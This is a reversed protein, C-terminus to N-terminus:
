PTCEMIIHTYPIRILDHRITIDINQFYKYALRLYQEKTRVYKGRDKSLVFRAFTRQDETYCGDLTVLRGSNKLLSKAISFLSLAEKDNLHHLVGHALVIDFPPMDNTHLTSFDQCLFTGKSGFHKKAYDIYKQSIDIGIYHVDPLYQVIDATGCGIDFIKDEDVPKLYRNVFLQRFDGGILKTFLTYFLPISLFTKFNSFFQM